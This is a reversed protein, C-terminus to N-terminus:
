LINGGGPTYAAGVVSEAIVTPANVVGVFETMAAEATIMSAAVEITSAEISLLEASALTIGAEGLELTNGFASLTIGAEGLMISSQLVDTITISPPEDMMSVKQGAATKLELSSPEDSLTVKQGATTELILSAPEDKLTVKQGGKTEVIVTAAEDMLTVKQGGDTELVLAPSEDKLTMKQHKPTELTLMEKEATDDLTITIGGRSRLVKINNKGEKDMTQPPEDKGNWLAGLIYPRRPDGAEFCILVEDNVEPMFWSGRNKGAMLTALRAWATYESEGTDLAWPLKVKVYGQGNPDVIDIVLAAYVGYWCHGGLGTPVRSEQIFALAHEGDVMM